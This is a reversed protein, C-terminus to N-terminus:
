VIEYFDSETHHLRFISELRFEQMNGNWLITSTTKSMNESDDDDVYLLFRHFEISIHHLPLGISSFFFETFLTCNQKESVFANQKSARGREM